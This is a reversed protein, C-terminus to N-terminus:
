DVLAAQMDVALDGQSTIEERPPMSMSVWTSTSPSL